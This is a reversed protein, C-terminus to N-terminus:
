GNKEKELNDNIELYNFEVNTVKAHAMRGGEPPGGISIIPINIYGAGYNIIKINSVSGNDLEAIMRARNSGTDPPNVAVIPVTVYGEGHDIIEIDFICGFVLQVLGDQEEIVRKGFKQSFKDPSRPISRLYQKKAKIKEPDFRKDGELSRIMQIDLEKFYNEIKDNILLMEGEYISENSNYNAPGIKPKGAVKRWTYRTMEDDDLFFVEHEQGAGGPAVSVEIEVRKKLLAEDEPNPFVVQHGSKFFILVNKKM